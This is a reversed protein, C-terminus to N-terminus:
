NSMNTLTALHQIKIAPGQHDAEPIYEFPKAFSLSDSFSSRSSDHNGPRPKDSLGECTPRCSVKERKGEAREGGDETERGPLGYFSSNKPQLSLETTLLV